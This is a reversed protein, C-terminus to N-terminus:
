GWFSACRPQSSKSIYSRRKINSICVIRSKNEFYISENNNLILRICNRQPRWDYWCCYVDVVIKGKFLYPGPKHKDCVIFTGSVTAWRIKADKVTILLEPRLTSFYDIALAIPDVHPGPM